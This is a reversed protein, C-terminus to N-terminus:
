KIITTETWTKFASMKEFHEQEPVYGEGGENHLNNFDNMLNPLNSMKHTTVCELIDGRGGDKTSKKINDFMAKNMSGFRDTVDVTEIKGNPRKITITIM